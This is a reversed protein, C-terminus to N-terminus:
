YPGIICIILPLNTFSDLSITAIIDSSFTADGKYIKGDKYSFLIDGSYTSEGLYVKDDIITYLPNSTMFGDGLYVKGDKITYEANSSFTSGGRYVTNNQFVYSPSGFANEGHYVQNKIITYVLDSNSESNGKYIKTQAFSCGVTLTILFTFLYKM